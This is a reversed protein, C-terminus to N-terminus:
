LLIDDDCVEKAEEAHICACLSYVVFAVKQANHGGPILDRPEDIGVHSMM